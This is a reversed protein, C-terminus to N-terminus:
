RVFQLRWDEPGRSLYSIEFRDPLRDQIQALLPLPDHPAVLILAGGVPISELAGFVTAHRISHPVTRVDFVPYDPEDLIGCECHHDASGGTSSGSGSQDTLPITQKM